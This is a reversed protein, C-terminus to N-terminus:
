LLTYSHPAKRAPPACAAAAAEEPQSAGLRVVEEDICPPVSRLLHEVRCVSDLTVDEGVGGTLLKNVADFAHVIILGDPCQLLFNKNPLFVAKAKFGFREESSGPKIKPLGYDPLTFKEAFSNADFFKIVGGIFCMVLDGTPSIALSCIGKDHCSVEQEVIGTNSDFVRMEGTNRPFRVGKGSPLIKIIDVWESKYKIDGTVSNCVYRHDLSIDGNSLVHVFLARKASKKDKGGVVCQLKLQIPDWVKAVRPNLVLSVLNGNPLVSLFDIIGGHNGVTAKFTGESDWTKIDGNIHGTVITGDKLVITDVVVAAEGSGVQLRRKLEFTQADYISGYKAVYDGDLTLGVVMEELGTRAPNISSTRILGTADDVIKTSLPFIQEQTETIILPECTHMVINNNPLVHTWRIQHRPAEVVRTTCQRYRMVYNYLDSFHRKYWEKIILERLDYTTRGAQAILDVNDLIKGCTLHLLSPVRPKEAGISLLRAEELADFSITALEQSFCCPVQFLSLVTLLLSLLKM